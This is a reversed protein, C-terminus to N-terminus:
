PPTSQQCLSSSMGHRCWRLTTYHSPIIFIGPRQSLHNADDNFGKTLPFTELTILEGLLQELQCEIFWTFKIAIKQLSAISKHLQLQLKLHVCVQLNTNKTDRHRVTGNFRQTQAAPPYLLLNFFCFLHFFVSRASIPALSFTRAEILGFAFQSIMRNSSQKTLPNLLDFIGPISKGRAGPPAWDNVHCVSKGVELKLGWSQNDDVNEIDLKARILNDSTEVSAM